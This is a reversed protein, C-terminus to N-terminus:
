WNGRQSLVGRQFSGRRTVTKVGLRPAIESAIRDAIWRGRPTLNHFNGKPVALGAQVLAAFSQARVPVGRGKLALACAISLDSGRAIMLAHKQEESYNSEIRTRTAALVTDVLALFPAEGAGATGLLGVNPHSNEPVPKAVDAAGPSDTPPPSAPVDYRARSSPYGSFLGIRQRSM